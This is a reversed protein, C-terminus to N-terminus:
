HNSSRINAEDNRSAAELIMRVGLANAYRFRNLPVRQCPMTRASRNADPSTLQTVDRSADEEKAPTKRYVSSVFFCACRFGLQANLCAMQGTKVSMLLKTVMVSNEPSAITECVGSVVSKRILQEARAIATRIAVQM